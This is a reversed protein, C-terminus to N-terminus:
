ISTCSVKATTKSEFQVDKKPVELNEQPKIAVPRCKIAMDKDYEKYSGQYITQGKFKTKSM